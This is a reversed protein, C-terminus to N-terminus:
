KPLSIAWDEYKEVPEMRCGKAHTTCPKALDIEGGIAVQFCAM